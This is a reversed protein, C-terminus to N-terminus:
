WRSTGPSSWGGSPRRRGGRATRRWPSPGSRRRRPAGAARASRGSSRRGAPGAGSRASRSASGRPRGRPRRTRASRGSATRRATSPCRPAPSCRGPRSRRPAPSAARPRATRRRSRRARPASGARRRCRAGLGPEDLLEDGLVLALRRQHDPLVEVLEVLDALPEVGRDDLALGRDLLALPQEVREPVALDVQQDDGLDRVEGDVQGRGRDRDLHGAREPGPLLLGLPEAPQQAGLLVLARRPEVRDDGAVGDVRVEGLM